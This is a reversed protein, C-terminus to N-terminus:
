DGEGKGLLEPLRAINIAIRRALGLCAQPGTRAYFSWIPKRKRTGGAMIGGGIPHIQPARLTFWRASDDKM